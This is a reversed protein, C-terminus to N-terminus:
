IYLNMSGFILMNGLPKLTLTSDEYSEIDSDYEFFHLCNEFFGRM